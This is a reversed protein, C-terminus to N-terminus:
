NFSETGLLYSLLPASVTPLLLQPFVVSFALPPGEAMLKAAPRPPAFMCPVCRCHRARRWSSQRRSRPFSCCVHDVVCLLCSVLVCCVVTFLREGGRAKSGHTLSPSNLRVNTCVVSCHLVRQWQRQQAPPPCLLSSCPLKVRLLCLGEAALKGPALM